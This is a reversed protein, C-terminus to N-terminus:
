DQPIRFRKSFIFFCTFMIGTIVWSIPFCNLIQIPSDFSMLLIYAIRVACIGVLSIYMSPLAAGCGKSVSSIGNIISYMVYFHAMMRNMRIGIDIVEPDTSFLSLLVNANYYVGVGILLAGIIEIGISWFVTSRVRKIQKNGFNQGAITMAAATLANDYIWFINDVNNYAAYAAISQTGFTNIKAQIVIASISYLAGQMGIPIGIKIIDILVDKAFGFNKLSYQYADSTNQLIWLVIVCCVLHSLLTALSSGIVGIKFVVILLFDFGIKSVCTIIVFLLPRRSDGLARMTNLGVYYIMLPILSLFYVRMYLLSDAFTEEPVGTFNLLSPSLFWGGVTVVAGMVVAMFIGSRVTEKIGPMNGRGREMAVKVSVGAALNGLFNVILNVLTTASGGVSALAESGLYRGLIISDVVGYVFQIFYYLMSPFALLLLQEPIKGHLIDKRVPKLKKTKM